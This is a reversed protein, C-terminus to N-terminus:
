YPSQAWSTQDDEESDGSMKLHGIGQISELLDDLTQIIGRAKANNQATADVSEATCYGGAIWGNMIGVMDGQIGNILCKTCPHNLWAQAESMDVAELLEAANSHFREEDYFRNTVKM